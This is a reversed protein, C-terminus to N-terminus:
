RRHMDKLANIQAALRNKKKKLMYLRARLKKIARRAHYLKVVANLEIENRSIRVLDTIKQPNCKIRQSVRLQTATPGALPLNEKDSDSLSESSTEDESSQSSMEEESSVSYLSSEASHSDSDQNPQVNSVNDPFYKTLDPGFLAWIAVSTRQTPPFLSSTTYAKTTKGGM